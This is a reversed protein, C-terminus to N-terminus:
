NFIPLLATINNIVHVLMCAEVGKRRMLWGIIIGLLLVQVFKIWEPNVMGAHGFSWIISSIFIALFGRSDFKRFWYGLVTLLFLRMSVEEFIGHFFGLGFIYGVYSSGLFDMMGKYDQSYTPKIIKTMALNIALIVLTALLVSKWPFAQLSKKIGTFNFTFSDLVPFHPLNQQECLRRGLAIFPIATILFFIDMLLMTGLGILSKEDLTTRDGGLAYGGISVFLFIILPITVILITKFAKKSDPWRIFFFVTAIIFAVIIITLYLCGAIMSWM